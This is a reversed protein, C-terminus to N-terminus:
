VGWCLLAITFEQVHIISM